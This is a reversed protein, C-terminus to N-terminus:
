GPAECRGAACAEDLAVALDRSLQDTGAANLHLPDAFLETPYGQTFDLFLLDRDEV